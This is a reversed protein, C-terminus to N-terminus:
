YEWVEDFNYAALVKIDPRNSLFKKATTLSYSLYGNDLIYFDDECYQYIAFVHGSPDENEEDKFVVWVCGLENLPIGYEALRLMLYHAQDECDGSKNKIVETSTAWYEDINYLDIDLVYEIKALMKIHIIFLKFKSPSKIINLFKYPIRSQKEQWTKIKKIEPIIESIEYKIWKGSPKRYHILNRIWDHFILMIIKIKHFM